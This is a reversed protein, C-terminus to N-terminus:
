TSPSAVHCGAPTVCQCSVAPAYDVRTVVACTMGGVDVRDVQTWVFGTKIVAVTTSPEPERQSADVEVSCGSLLCILMVAVFVWAIQDPTIGRRIM